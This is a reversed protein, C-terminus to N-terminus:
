EGVKVDVETRPLSVIFDNNQEQAKIPINLVFTTGKGAQSEVLIKGGHAEIFRKCIPLGFGMGKTKTTFLPTWIKQMNEENIGTGTDTFSICADNEMKRSEITLVGGNPMADFANKILNTFVRLIKDRDVRIKPESEVEKVISIGSPAELQALAEELLSKPDAEGLDLKIERSYDLLDGIIRNSRDISKEIITLMEKEKEGMKSQGKTKLYYLASAIGNLPNRLDHSVMGAVEGIVAFREAKLLRNQAEILDRTREEVKTEFREILQANEIAVAAQHLFLELPELSDKTPRRGDTPDDMSIMAVIRGNALKLPAYLLDDPNWDIMDERKMHSSVTGTRFKRKALPDNWPVYYFEGIKFSDFEPGLRELWVKGSQRNIWLSQQEEKTLGSTLLDEPKEIDLQANRVSLVIRRWGLGQIADIIAQLREQLKPSHIMVTSSRMLSTQQNVVSALKEESKKLEVTRAEVMRELNAAYEQLKEGMEKRNTIDQLITECGIIKGDHRLPNSAYEIVVRGNPIMIETEGQVNNGRIVSIHEMFIRPRNKLPIFKLMNKGVIEDKNLGITDSVLRNVYTIKGKQDLRLIGIRAEECLSRYKEESAEVEDRARQQMLKLDEQTRELENEVMLFSTIDGVIENKAGSFMLATFVFGFLTLLVTIEEELEINLSIWSFTFCSFALFFMLDSSGRRKISLYLSAPLFISGFICLLPFRLNEATNPFALLLISAGLTVLYLKFPRDFDKIKLLSTIVVILGATGVPIFSWIYSAEWLSAVGFRLLMLNSYGVSAFAFSLMLMIKKKDRDKRSLYLLFVSVTVTAVFPIAWFFARSLQELDM